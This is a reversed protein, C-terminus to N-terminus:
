ESRRRPDGKVKELRALWSTVPAGDALLVGTSRMEVDGCRTFTEVGQIRRDPSAYRVILVHDDFHGEGLLVTGLPQSDMRFRLATSGAVEIHYNSRVPRAALDDADRIEGDVRLTEPFEDSPHIETVGSVREPARGTPYYWGELLWSGPVLLPHM